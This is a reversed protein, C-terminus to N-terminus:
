NVLPYRNFGSNPIMSNGHKKPYIWHGQQNLRNTVGVDDWRNKTAFLVTHQFIM